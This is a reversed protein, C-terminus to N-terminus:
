FLCHMVAAKDCQCEAIGVSEATMIIILPFFDENCQYLQEAVLILTEKSYRMSEKLKAQHRSVCHNILNNSANIILEGSM